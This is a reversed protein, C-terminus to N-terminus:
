GDGVTDAVVKVMFLPYLSWRGVASLGRVGPEFANGRPPIMSRMELSSREPLSTRASIWFTLNTADYLQTLEEDGFIIIGPIDAMRSILVDLVM